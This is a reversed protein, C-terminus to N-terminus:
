NLQGIADLNPQFCMLPESILLKKTFRFSLVYYLRKKLNKESLKVANCRKILFHKCATCRTGGLIFGGRFIWESLLMGIM